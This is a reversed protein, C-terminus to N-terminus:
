EADDEDDDFGVTAGIDQLQRQLAAPLYANRGYVVGARQPKQGALALVYPPRTGLDESARWICIRGKALLSAVVEVAARVPIGLNDSVANYLIGAPETQLLEMLQM